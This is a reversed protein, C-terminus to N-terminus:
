SVSAAAPGKMAIEIMRATKEEDDGSSIMLDYLHPNIWEKGFRLRLYHARETDVTHMRHEINAGPELRSRLRHMKVRFPAYVFVHFADEKAQLICQAGRGVIVCNGDAYASEIIQRTLDTMVDPDFCKEDALAVGAAMAAGRMAQRNIRQLWGEVHEDFRSVVNADVHGACAIADILAGDLLKWGLRDAISKAIRGGGSGFERDVTLIRYDM